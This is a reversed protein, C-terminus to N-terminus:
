MDDLDDETEQILQAIERDRERADAATELEKRHVNGSFRMGQLAERHMDLVYKVRQKIEEQPESTEYINKKSKSQMYGGKHDITADIVRDKIAKAVIYETDEESDLGLKLCVDRLSIRSYALTITRLATRIVFHRLRLILFHTSDALFAQEHTTFARQFAAVDGVRVAQVIQFYPALAAQLVPRRFMARDPIRGTLMETVIYFKHLIQVFGPAVEDKPARRIATLLLDAAGAYNLQVARLRATYFLWRATQATNSSTPMEIKSLLKDAQDYLNSALYSRLLLNIVTIELNEDKRLKATQRVALLTPRLEALRGELEYCRALYFYVKAAIQDMTRRNAAQIQETTELAFAGANEILGADIGALIILLRLYMVGEPILEGTQDVPPQYKKAVADKKGEKSDKGDKADKSDDKKGDKPTEDVDMSEAEAEPATDPLGQFLDSAILQQGVKSGKPFARTIADALQRKTLRKRLTTLTRLVRTTFRPEITSVARGILQLNNLIEDEVSLPEPKEEVVEDKKDEDATKEGDKKDRPDLKPDKKETTM